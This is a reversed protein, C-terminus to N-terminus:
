DNQELHRILWDDVLQFNLLDCKDTFTYSVIRGSWIHSEWRTFCFLYLKRQSWEFYTLDSKGIDLPLEERLDGDAVRQKAELRSVKWRELYVRARAIELSVEAEISVHACRQDLILNNAPLQSKVWAIPKSFICVYHTTM